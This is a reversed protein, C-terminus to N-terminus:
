HVQEASVQLVEAMRKGLQHLCSTIQREVGEDVALDHDGTDVPPRVETRKLFAEAFGPSIRRSL